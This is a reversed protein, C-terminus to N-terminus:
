YTCLVAAITLIALKLLTEQKDVTMHLLGTKQLVSTMKADTSYNSERRFSISHPYSLLLLYIFQLFSASKCLLYSLQVSWTELSSIVMLEKHDFINNAFILKKGPPQPRILPFTWSVPGIQCSLFRSRVWGNLLWCRPWCRHWIYINISQACGCRFCKRRTTNRM